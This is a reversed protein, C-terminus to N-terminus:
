PIPYDFNTGHFQRHHHNVDCMMSDTIIYEYFTKDLEKM